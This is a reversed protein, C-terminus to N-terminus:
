YKKKLVVYSIWRLIMIFCVGASAMKMMDERGIMKFIITGVAGSLVFLYGAWAWSKLSIYKNREDGAEIDWKERYEENTKYKIVRVGFVIGVVCLTIGFTNWYEDVMGLASCVILVVGISIEVVSVIWRKKDM